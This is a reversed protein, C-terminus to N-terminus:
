APELGLVQEPTTVLPNIRVVEDFGDLDIDRAWKHFLKYDHKPAKDSFFTLGQGSRACMESSKAIGPKNWFWESVTEVPTVFYWAVVRGVGLERLREIIARRERSGGNWTDLIIRSDSTAEVQEKVREWMVEYAHYHGGSYADLFVSGFLEYLIKDRSILTLSPDLAVAKECFSSKGSGQPGVTLIVEKLIGEKRKASFVVICVFTLHHM